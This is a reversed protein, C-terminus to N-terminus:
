GRRVASWTGYCQGGGASWHGGGRLGRLRGYGTASQGGKSVTVAIGGSAVVAGSIQYSFDNEAQMVRGHVIRAPYRYSPDCPGARTFISVSWLGDFASSAAARAHKHAAASPTAAVAMLLGAVAIAALIARHKRM